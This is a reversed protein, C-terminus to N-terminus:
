SRIPAKAASAKGERTIRSTTGKVAPPPVAFPDLHFDPELRLLARFHRTADDARHLNFASLGALKHLELLDQESLRGQDIRRTARELVEAYRGYEYSSRLAPVAEDVWDEALAAGPVSVSAWCGLLALLCLCRRM